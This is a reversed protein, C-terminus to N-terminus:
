AEARRLPAFSQLLRRVGAGEFAVVVEIDGRHPQTSVVTGVGFKEHVVKDGPRWRPEAASPPVPAPQFLAAEPRRDAGARWPRVVGQPLDRLFRSPPNATFGGYGARRQARTLYLLDKARTIGVYALRREEELEEPSEFARIHPLLGEEMGVMFVVPFELGKAAHLTILTVAQVGEELEDVDAVLSVDQLFAALEGTGGFDEYQAMVSRLQDINEAREIAEQEDEERLHRLYGTAELVADLLEALPAERRARLGEILEVFERVAAAQRGAVGGPAEGRAASEFAAWVPLGRERAWARLRDVTRVGLGRPPVNVVRLLSAEDYRNHVLRLYALIDKIERRQYFRIGGVIRYPIRHRVLAEEIARSQANIRYMVAFDGYRRGQLVLRGVENAVFEAEDEDSYAEYLLVAEGGQRETWLRRPFRGPNKAIVADAAALIPATSRYNQELPYIHCEPFDRQFYEVNRRDASRWAYISQDPDGVVFLQRHGEALLRCLAYQAPNTDQFEDVLIYAYRRAYKARIAEDSRLLRVAELLLDDFDLASSARLAQQYARYVRAAVEEAYSGAREAFAEPGLMESKAKSIVALLSRPSFRRPDIGLEALVSKVLAVQDADDYITFDPDLGIRGGDIRLWRACMSHFTGIHAGEAEEGLLGAVRQRMERAAKNTFTVALVQWPAAGLERVVFGVRHAIVRTKGSGPGALVLAPGGPHTVAARQAENLDALLDAAPLSTV